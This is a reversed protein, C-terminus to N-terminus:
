PEKQIRIIDTLPIDYSYDVDEIVYNKDDIRMLQGEMVRMRKAEDDHWWFLLTQGVKLADPPVRGGPLDSVPEEVGLKWLMRLHETPDVPYGHEM